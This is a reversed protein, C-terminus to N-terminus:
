LGNPDRDWLQLVSVYFFRQDSASQRANVLAKERAYMVCKENIRALYGKKILFNMSFQSSTAQTNQPLALM